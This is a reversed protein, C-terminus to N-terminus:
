DAGQMHDSCVALYPSSGLEMELGCIVTFNGVLVSLYTEAARIPMSPETSGTASVGSKAKFGEPLVFFVTGKRLLLAIYIYGLVAEGEKGERGKGERGELALGAPM